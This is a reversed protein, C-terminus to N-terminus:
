VVLDTAGAIGRAAAFQPAGRPAVYARGILVFDGTSGHAQAVQGIRRKQGFADIGRQRMM